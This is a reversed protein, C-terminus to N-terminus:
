RTEGRGRPASAGAFIFVCLSFALILGILVPWDGWRAFPTLGVRGQAELNLVGAQHQPLVGVARGREDIAGTVGTNTARLMWRSTELSRMQSMQFHQDAAWSRGFWAVNSVNVLLTADPLARTIEAGFADEYCINAAVKQDVVLFPKQVADGRAFDTLPIKLIKLVWGFGPPIYEGFPVLHSKRYRAAEGEVGGVMAVANYYDYAGEAATREVTGLLIRSGKAEAHRKLDALYGPPIQDFFLPLATEPLVILQADSALVRERYMALTAARVEQMWKRDQSVNGQLLSVRIPKGAPESWTVQTLSLGGVVLAGCVALSIGAARPRTRRTGFAYVVLGAQSALLWGVGFVGVLPAFGALWGAPAHSYGISLWPFGTFLWARLWETATWAAPLLLSLTVADSLGRRARLWMAFGSALATFLSLYLAFLFTALAALPMLMQGYVHLSVYVWSVGVLFFGLGFSMGAFAARQWSPARLTLVMWGAMAALLLLPLGLPAFALAGVAGAILGIAFIRLKEWGGSTAPAPTARM